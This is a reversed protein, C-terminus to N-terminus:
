MMREGKPKYEIRANHNRAKRVSEPASRHASSQKPQIVPLPRTDLRM